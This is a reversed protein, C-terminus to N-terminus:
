GDLIMEAVSQGSPIMPMCNEDPDSVVDVVCPVGETALAQRLAPEVQDPREVRIGRAGFAEALRAFDPNRLLVASLRQRYFLSQWQRVMGLAGNNLIVIPLSLRYDVATALDQMTMQFGGDGVVAVVQRDPRAFRAGMAAPFGFGMCGLGGSSIFTRPERCRYWQAMWMQHQGVDTVAIASGGTLRNLVDCVYQNSIREDGQRYRFPHRQRWEEIQKWWAEIRPPTVQPLLAALVRRADGV